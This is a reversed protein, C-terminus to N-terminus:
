REIIIKESLIIEGKHQVQVFYVGNIFQATHVTIKEDNYKQSFLKRGSRDTISVVTEGPLRDLFVHDKAPNPYLLPKDILTNESVGLQAPHLKVIWFDLSGHNGSVDGNTSFSGGSIIYGDDNTQEISSLYEVNSGGLCKQWQLNGLNDIKAIWYDRNGHNGTVHGDTSVSWGAVIYGGDVTERVAEANDHGSGGFLKHWQVNGAGDLKVVWYDPIGPYTPTEGIISDSSIGAVIYGGDFTQRISRAIDNGIGGLSKQWQINGSTDLKVIWYDYNGHNVTVDGDTSNVSSGAVIYGGDGTQQISMAEDEGSGGFSKEWQINGSIDLKVIWYDSGGHNGTVDGNASMSYGAVVYGGDSTQQISQASDNSSGGLSKQWQINGSTDLKVIWYDFNGHNGTIDGDASLSYGAVIYGGDSTQRVSQATDAGSGGLSKQWQMNGSADLKVVWYDSGGHNGTVDGNVSNSMGAVIYGGDSTQEVSYAWDGLSGGLSKGWQISPAQSHLSTYYLTFLLFYLIKKM